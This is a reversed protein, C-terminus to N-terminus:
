PSKKMAATARELDLARRQSKQDGSVEYARHYERAAEDTRGEMEYVAGWTEHLGNLSDNEPELAQLVSEASSFKGLRLETQALSLSLKARRLSPVRPDHALQSLYPEAEIYKKSEFLGRALRFQVEPNDPSIRYANQFQELALENKGEGLYLDGLFDLALTNNPGIEIARRFFAEDSAYYDQQSINAAFLAAFLIVAVAIYFIRLPKSRAWLFKFLIGVILCLGVSPLYLYRDHALDGDRFIRVGLLVPVLPFFLLVAAILAVREREITLWVLLASGAVVLFGGMWVKWNLNAFVPNEYFPSLGTPRILKGFYFPVLSLGTSGVQPWSHRNTEFGTRQIVVFRLALYAFATLVFPFSLQITRTLRERMSASTEQSCCIWLPFIPLLVVATEKSLLAACWLLPSLWVNFYNRSNAKVRRVFVLLSFLVAASFLIENSASIWSVPEVHIPHVAFLTGAVFAGESSHLLELSLKFVAFTAV